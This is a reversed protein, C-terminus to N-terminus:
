FCTAIVLTANGSKHSYHNDAKMNINAGMHITVAAELPVM